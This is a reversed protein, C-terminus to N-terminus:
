SSIERTSIHTRRQFQGRKEQQAAGHPFSKRRRGSMWSNSPVGAKSKKGLESNTGLLKATAESMWWAELECRIRGTEKGNKILPQDIQIGEIPDEDFESPEVVQEEEVKRFMTSARRLFGDRKSGPKGESEGQTTPLAITIPNGNTGGVQSSSGEHGMNQRSSIKARNEQNEKCARLLNVLNFSFTGLVADEGTNRYDMVTMRLMAGALDISSGDKAHTMIECHVDDDSWDAEFTGMRRSSRPWGSAYRAVSGDAMFASALSQAFVKTRFRKWRSLSKRLACEPNSILCVYPNPPVDSGYEHKDILVNMDSVFLQLREKIGTVSDNKGKSSRAKKKFNLHMVSQRRSLRPRLRYPANLDVAFAARVPKHDSSAFKDIPEYILPRVGKELEHGSKWLVRDTYSPSRKKIYSYGPQREMKFTPPFNCPLTEFGVLCDKQLLARRLEDAENLKPWDKKAVLDRVLAKHEEEDVGELATRFNLDGMVFSHHSTLSVDDVSTEGTGGLITALSNCRMTYKSKGEHAELHATLFSLRTSGNVLLETVIGGKNALGGRGTNQASVRLVEVDVVNSNCFIELRMEGRQFSVIREYTPLRAQLMEHLAATGGSWNEPKILSLRKNSKSEKTFDHNATLTSVGSVAKKLTKNATKFGKLGVKYGTNLLPQVVPVTLRITQDTETNDPIDFTSEQMGIVIIDFQDTDDYDSAKWTTPTIPSDEKEENSLTAATPKPVLIIPYKPDETLVERCCGDAPIWEALSADDPQENGLNGSCILLQLERDKKM